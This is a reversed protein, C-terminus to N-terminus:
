KIVIRGQGYPDSYDKGIVGGLDEVIYDILIQYDQGANEVAVTADDFSTYGSGNECLIFENGAITYKKKPDLPKDGIMIDSVRRQGDFGAMMRNEDEICGSKVKTDIKFTMGSVQLFAGEDDPVARCSWELADAIQQGTVELVVTENGYPNVNIIDGYTIDGKGMDARLGGGNVIGIDAGTRIRIADACLDGLNTERHRVMLIPYGDEDLMGPENILLAVDTRAVVQNIQKTVKAKADDIVDTIENRIGFLEPVSEGNDWVWIGTDTTGDKAKIHSYGIGSFKYGCAIRTVDEGDKNRIVMKDLDHSHGDLVVDIGTTNEIVDMCSYPALDEMNGLHSMLYVYDAGEAIAAEVSDQVCAYLQSGDGQMFGYIYNGNEDQFRKPAESAFIKPTTVGVFAIKKGGAEKILYPDFVPKGDKVFNCCICPFDALEVCRFLEDLGFDFEHNGPISVDYGLANMIPIIDEGKSIAGIPEGQVHDGNDVLIVDCGRAKLNSVIQALGVYGFGQEVACHVDSTCVIYIDKEPLAAKEGDEGETKGAETESEKKGDASENKAATDSENEGDASENEAATDSENKGAASENEAAAAEEVIEQTKQPNEAMAGVLKAIQEADANCGSLVTAVSLMVALVAISRRVKWNRHPMRHGIKHEM